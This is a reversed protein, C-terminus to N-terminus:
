HILQIKGDMSLMWLSSIWIFVHRLRTNICCCHSVVRQVLYCQLLVMYKFMIQTCELSLCSTNEEMIFLCVSFTFFTLYVSSSRSVRTRLKKNKQKQVNCQFPRYDDLAVPQISTYNTPINRASHHERSIGFVRSM